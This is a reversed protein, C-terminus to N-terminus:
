APARSRRHRRSLHKGNELNDLLCGLKKRRTPNFRGPEVRFQQDAMRQSSLPHLKIQLEFPRQVFRLEFRNPVPVAGLGEVAALYIPSPIARIKVGRLDSPQMFARNATLQRTGFYFAYLVRVGSSGILGDTLSKMVPSDAAVVKMLHETSRYQYPTDLAALPNYLASLAGATNHSLAITGTSV